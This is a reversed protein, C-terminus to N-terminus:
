KGKPGNANNQGKTVKDNDKYEKYVNNLLLALQADNARQKAQRKYERPL